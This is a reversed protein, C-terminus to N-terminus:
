SDEHKHRDDWIVGCIEYSMKALVAICGVIFLGLAFLGQTLFSLLLAMGVIASLLGVTVVAFWPKSLGWYWSRATARMTAREVINESGHVPLRTRSEDM